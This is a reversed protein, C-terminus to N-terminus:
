RLLQLGLIVGLVTTLVAYNGNSDRRGYRYHSSYGDDYGRQFGQRFYHSYVDQEVYYGDYGYSADQYGYNGRYDARWGDQRDARGARLGEQYGYNVAQRMLDAGYRNTERYGGGYAYRYSAPTSFYRDDYPNYGRANWRSRQQSLRQLYQQEYRFQAMRRQQQLQRARIESLQRQQAQWHRYRDARHTEDRIRQDHQDRDHRDYGTRQQPQGDDFRRDDGHRPQWQGAQQRSDGQRTEAAQRTDRQGHDGRRQQRAEFPHDGDQQPEGSPRLFRQRDDRQPPQAAPPRQLDGVPEIAQPPRQQADDRRRDQQQAAQERPAEQHRNDPGQASRNERAERRQTRREVADSTGTDRQADDQGSEDGVRDRPNDRADAQAGFGLTLISGLALARLARPYSSVNM